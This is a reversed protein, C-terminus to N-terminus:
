IHATNILTIFNKEINKWDSGFRIYNNHEGVGDISAYVAVKKNLRATANIFKESIMTM